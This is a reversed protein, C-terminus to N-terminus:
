ADIANLTVKHCVSLCVSVVCYVQHPSIQQVKHTKQLQRENYYKILYFMLSTLMSSPKCKAEKKLTRNQNILHKVVYTMLYTTLWAGAKQPLVPHLLWNHTHTNNTQQWKLAAQVNRASTPVNTQLQVRFVGLCVMKTSIHLSGPFPKTLYIKPYSGSNKSRDRILHKKETSASHGLKNPDTEVHNRSM